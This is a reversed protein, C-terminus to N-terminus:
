PSKQEASNTEVSGVLKLVQGVLVSEDEHLELVPHLHYQWGGGPDLGVSQPAKPM